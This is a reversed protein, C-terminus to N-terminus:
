EPAKQQEDKIWKNYCAIFEEKTIVLKNEYCVITDGMYRVPVSRILSDDNFIFDSM